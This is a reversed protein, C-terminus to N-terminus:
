KTLEAAELEKRTPFLGCSEREDCYGLRYCKPQLHAGIFPAVKEVEEKIRRFLERIEWQARLCLRLGAAHILERANMTMVLKTEIAQPLVYRADEAPIGAHLM